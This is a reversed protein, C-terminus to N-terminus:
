REMEKNCADIYINRIRRSLKLEIKPDIGGARLIKEAFESPDCLADNIIQMKNYIPIQVGYNPCIMDLFKSIFLDEIKM